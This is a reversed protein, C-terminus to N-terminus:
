GVRDDRRRQPLAPHTEATERLKIGFEDAVVDFGERAETRMLPLSPILEQNLHAREGQQPVLPLSRRRIRGLGPAIKQCRQRGATRFRRPAQYDTVRGLWGEQLRRGFLDCFKRDKGLRRVPEVNQHSGLVVVALLGRRGAPRRMM